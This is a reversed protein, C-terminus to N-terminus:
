EQLIDVKDEINEVNHNEDEATPENDDSNAIPEERHTISMTFTFDKAEERFTMFFVIFAILLSWESVSSILYSLNYSLMSVSWNCNGVRNAEDLEDMFGERVTYGQLAACMTILCILFVRIGLIQRQKPHLLSMIYTILICYFMGGLFLLLAGILHPTITITIWNEQTRHFDIPFAGVVLMGLIAFHGPILSIRNLLAVTSRVWQDDIKKKQLRVCMYLLNLGIFALLSSLALLLCFVGSQPPSGAVQSVFPLFPNLTKTFLIIFYPVFITALMLACMIMPLYGGGIFKYETISKTSTVQVIPWAM